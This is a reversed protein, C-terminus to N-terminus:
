ALLVGVHGVLVFSLVDEEHGVSRKVVYESTSKTAQDLAPKIV